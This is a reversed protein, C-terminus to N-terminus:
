IYVCVCACVCVKKPCETWKKPTCFISGNGPQCWRFGGANHCIETRRALPRSLQKLNSAGSTELFLPVESDDMELHIKWSIFWGAIFPYGWKISVLLWPLASSHDVIPIPCLQLSQVWLCVPWKCEGAMRNKPYTRCKQDTGMQCGCSQWGFNPHKQDAFNQAWGNSRSWSSYGSRGSIAASFECISFSAPPMATPAVAKIIADVRLCDKFSPSLHATSSNHVSSKHQSLFQFDILRILRLCVNPPPKLKSSTLFIESATDWM